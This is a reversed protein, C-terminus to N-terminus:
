SERQIITLDYGLILRVIKSGSGSDETLYNISPGGKVMVQFESGSLTDSHRQPQLATTIGEGITDVAKRTITTQFSVVELVQRANSNFTTHNSADATNFEGIIIQVKDSNKGEGEYVPVASGNYSVNGNLLTFITQRIYPAPNIM